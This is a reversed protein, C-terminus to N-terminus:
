VGSQRIQSAPMLSDVFKQGTMNRIGAANISCRRTGGGNLEDVIGSHRDKM